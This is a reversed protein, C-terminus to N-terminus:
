FYWLTDLCTCIYIFSKKSPFIITKSLNTGNRDNKNYVLSKESSFYNNRIKKYYEKYEAGM